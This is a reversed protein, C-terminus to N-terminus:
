QCYFLPSIANAGACITAIKDWFDLVSIANIPVTTALTNGAEGAQLLTFRAMITASEAGRITLTGM